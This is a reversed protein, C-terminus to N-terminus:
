AESAVESTFMKAYLFPCRTHAESHRRHALDSSLLICQFMKITTPNVVSGIVEYHTPRWTRTRRPLLTVTVEGGDCAVVTATTGMFQAPASMKGLSVPSSLLTSEIPPLPSDGM